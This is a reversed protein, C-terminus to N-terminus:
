SAALAHAVSPASLSRNLFGFDALRGDLREVELWLLVAPAKVRPCLQKGAAVVCGFM